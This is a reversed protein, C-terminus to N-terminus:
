SFRVRFRVFQPAGRVSNDSLVRRLENAFVTLALDPLGNDRVVHVPFAGSGGYLTRVAVVDRTEEHSTRAPASAV